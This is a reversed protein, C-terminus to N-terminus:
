MNFVSIASLAGSNWQKQYNEMTPYMSDVFKGILPVTWKDGPLHRKKLRYLSQELVLLSILVTATTYLWTPFLTTSFTYLPGSSLSSNFSTTM